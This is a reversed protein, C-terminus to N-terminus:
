KKGISTLYFIELLNNHRSFKVKLNKINISICIFVDNNVNSSLLSLIVLIELLLLNVFDITSPLLIKLDPKLKDSLFAAILATDEVKSLILDNLFEVSSL